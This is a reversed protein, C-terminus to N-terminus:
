REEHAERGEHDEREEGHRVGPNRSCGNLRHPVDLYAADAHSTVKYEDGATFALEATGDGSTV